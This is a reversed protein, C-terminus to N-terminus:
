KGYCEIFKLTADVARQEANLERLMCFRPARQQLTFLKRDKEHHVISELLIALREPSTPGYMIHPGVIPPVGDPFGAAIRTATDDPFLLTATPIGYLVAKAADTNGWDAVVANSAFYLKELEVKRADVFPIDSAVAREWLGAANPHKPHFRWAVKNHLIPNEELIKTLQAEAREPPEGGFSITTLFDHPLIRLEERIRARLILFEEKTPLNGFTPKGVVTVHVGPRVRWVIEAAAQDIVLMADPLAERVRSGEGTGWLDEFWIVPIDYDEGFSTWAVQLGAATASTGCLIADFSHDYQPSPQRDRFDFIGAERLSKEGKGEPDCFWSLNVGKEAFPKATAILERTCGIDGTVVAINRVHKAM